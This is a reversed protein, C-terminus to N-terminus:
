WQETYKSTDVKLVYKELTLNYTYIYGPQWNIDVTTSIDKTVASWDDWTANVTLTKNGYNNPITMYSSSETTGGNKLVQAIMMNDNGSYSGWNMTTGNYTCTGRTYLNAISISNIQVHTGSAATITFKIIALPHKFELPLAGGAATQTTYTQANLVAILYEQMEPITPDEDGDQRALTMYESMDCTFSAGTSYDYTPAGIYAPEDYPCYGVFDLSSVTINATSPDYVSGEIPWYYHLANDSGDVFGWTGTAYHLKVNRLYATTTNHFYANIRIDQSELETDSNIANTRRGAKTQRSDNTVDINIEAKSVGDNPNTTRTTDTSDGSCAAFTAALVLLAISKRINLDNTLKMLRCLYTFGVFGGFM